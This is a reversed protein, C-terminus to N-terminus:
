LNKYFIKKINRSRGIPTNRAFRTTDEGAMKLKFFRSYVNTSRRNPAVTTKQKANKTPKTVNKASIIFRDVIDFNGITLGFLLSASLVFDKVIPHAQLYDDSFFHLSFQSVYYPAAISFFAREAIKGLSWTRENQKIIERNQDRIEQLVKLSEKQTQDDSTKQDFVAYRRYTYPNPKKM